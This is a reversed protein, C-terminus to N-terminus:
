DIQTATAVINFAIDLNYDTGDTTYGAVAKGAALDGLATDQTDTSGDGFAWAWGLVVSPATEGLDVDNGADVVRYYHGDEVNFYYTVAEIADIAAQLTDFPTAAVGDATVTWKVPRYVPDSAGLFVEETVTGAFTLKYSVEPKVASVSLSYGTGSTGPAVLEKTDSSKVSVAMETKYDNDHTDYKVDFLDTSTTVFEVGWKAVRAEGAVADSVRVYKAFTGSIMCTSLLTLVLVVCAARMIVNKKM